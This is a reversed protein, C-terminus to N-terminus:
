MCDRENAANRGTRAPRAWVNPWAATVGGNADCYVRTSRPTGDPRGAGAPARVILASSVFVNITAPLALERQTTRAWRSGEAWMVPKWPGAVRMHSASDM